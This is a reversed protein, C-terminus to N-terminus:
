MRRFLLVPGLPCKKIAISFAIFIQTIVRPRLDRLGIVHGLSSLALHLDNPAKLLSPLLTLHGPTGIMPRYFPRLNLNFAHHRLYLPISIKYERYPCKDVDPQLATLCGVGSKRPLTIHVPPNLAIKYPQGSGKPRSKPSYSVRQAFAIAITEERFDCYRRHTNKASSKDKWEPM